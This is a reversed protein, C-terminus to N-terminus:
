RKLGEDKPNSIELRVNKIDDPVSFKGHENQHYQNRDEVLYYHSLDGSEEGIHCSSMSYKIIDDLSHVPSGPEFNHSDTHHQPIM